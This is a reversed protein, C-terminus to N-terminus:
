CISTAHRCRHVPVYRNRRRVIDLVVVAFATMTYMNFLVPGVHFGQTGFVTFCTQFYKLFQRVQFAPGCSLGLVFGMNGVAIARLRDKQISAMSMYGRLVSFMGSFKKYKATKGTGLGVVFRTALMHWKIRDTISPLLGYMLNGFAAILLGCQVPRITSM